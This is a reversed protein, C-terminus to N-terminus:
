LISYYSKLMESNTRFKLCSVCKSVPIRVANTHMDNLPIKLLLDLWEIQLNKKRVGGKGGGKWWWSFRIEMDLNMFYGFLRTWKFIGNINNKDTM